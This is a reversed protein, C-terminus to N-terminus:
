TYKAAVAAAAQLCACLCLKRESAYRTTTTSSEAPTTTREREVQEVVIAPPLPLLVCCVAIPTIWCDGLACECLRTLSRFQFSAFFAVPFSSSVVVALAALSSRVLLFLSIIIIIKTAALEDVKFSLLVIRILRCVNIGYSISKGWEISDLKM